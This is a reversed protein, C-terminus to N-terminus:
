APWGFMGMLCDLKQLRCKFSYKAWVFWDYGMTDSISCVIFVSIGMDEKSRLQANYELVIADVGPLIVIGREGTKRLVAARLRLIDLSM